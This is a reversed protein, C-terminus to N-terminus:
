DEVTLLFELALDCAAELDLAQGVAAAERKWDEHTMAERITALTDRAGAIPAFDPVASMLRAGDAFAGTAAAIRAAEALMFARAFDAGLTQRLSMAEHLALAAPKHQGTASYDSSLNYLSAMQRALDPYKRAVALSKLQYPIAAESGETKRVALGLNGMITGVDEDMGLDRYVDAADEYKRIAEHPQEFGYLDVAAGNAWIKARFILDKRAHETDLAADYAAASDDWQEARYFQFGQFFLAQAASADDGTARALELAEGSCSLGLEVDGAETAIWCIALALRSRTDSEAESTASRLRTALEIGRAFPGRESWLNVVSDFLAVAAELEEPTSAATLVSELNGRDAAFLDIRHENKSEKLERAWDVLYSALRSATAAVEGEAELRHRAYERVSELMRFRALGLRETLADDRELLSKDVLETLIDMVDWSEVGDGACVAEAAELSCGGTFVALRRFAAQDGPQLLDYSWDMLARLNQHHATATAERTSLVRLREGLREEIQPLPLVKVRAAALELGLPIGDVQRCIRAATRVGDDDPSFDPDATKARDLFLRIADVRRLEEASMRDTDEPVSLPALRMPQELSGRLPERSSAVVKIHPAAKLLADITVRAPEIVQECNDLVLLCRKGALHELVPGLAGEGSGVDAGVALAIVRAVGGADSVPALEAFWVGDPHDGASGRAVELSLRTKGAGGTGLLTVWRGERLLRAGEELEAERGFFTGRRTPLNNPVTLPIPGDDTTASKSLEALIAGLEERVEEATAPREAPDKALCFRLLRGLRDDGGGPLKTWEPERQVTAIMRALGTPANFARDGSMFEYALAGFAFLDSQVSAPQGDIQEPSVFGPTGVAQNAQTLHVDGEISKALGFDLVKVLDDSGVMVNGPKLDRHIVGRAHAAHLARAIQELIPVAAAPDQPGDAWDNLTKGEVFEMTLFHRGDWEELSHITAVNPHNISALLRAESQLQQVSEEDETRSPTLVKVAIRRELRPDIGLYVVGMGGQGLKRELPYVGVREPVHNKDNSARSM